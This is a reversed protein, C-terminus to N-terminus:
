EPKPIANDQEDEEVPTHLAQILEMYAQNEEIGTASVRNMFLLANNKTREDLVYKSM